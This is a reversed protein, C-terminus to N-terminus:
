DELLCHVSPSVLDPAKKGTFVIKDVCGNIIRIRKFFTNLGFSHIHKLGDTHIYIALLDQSSNKLLNILEHASTGDFDGSLELNLRDGTRNCSIQFNSAMATFRITTFGFTEKKSM